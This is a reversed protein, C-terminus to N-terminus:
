AGGGSREGGGNRKVLGECRRSREAGEFCRWFRRCWRLGM